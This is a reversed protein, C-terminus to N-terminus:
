IYMYVYIHTHTHTLSLSLSLNKLIRKSIVSNSQGTTVRHPQCSTLIWYSVFLSRLSSVGGGKGGGGGRQGLRQTINQSPTSSTGTNIMPTSNVPGLMLYSHPRMRRSYHLHFLTCPIGVCQKQQHQNLISNAAKKGRKQQQQHQFETDAHNICFLTTKYNCPQKYKTHTHTHTEFSVVM